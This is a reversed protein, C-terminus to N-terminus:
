NLSKDLSRSGLYLVIAGLLCSVPCVLLTYRMMGANIMAGTQPDTAIGAFDNLKAILNAGILYAAINVSFFYISVALGRLNAGAIETADAAAAGLWGLGAFLLLFAAPVILAFNDTFLISLWLVISVASLIAGYLMRGGPRRRRFRDALAGGFVTAPIGAALTLIGSWYGITPIPLNYISNLYTAGWVSINNTALGFFAYGLCLFM